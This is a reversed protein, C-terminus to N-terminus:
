VFFDARNTMWVYSSVLSHTLVIEFDIFNYCKKYPKGSFFLEYLKSEFFSM